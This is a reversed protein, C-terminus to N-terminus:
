CHGYSSSAVTRGAVSVSVRVGTPIGWTSCTSLCAEAATGNPVHLPIPICVHGLGLPLNLCVRNDEVTVAVCESLLTVHGNDSGAQSAREAATEAAYHSRASEISASVAEPDFEYTKM